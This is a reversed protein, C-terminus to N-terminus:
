KGINLDEGILAQRRISDTSPSFEVPPRIYTFYPGFIHGSFRCDYLPPMCMKFM